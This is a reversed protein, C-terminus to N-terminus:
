LSLAFVWPGVLPDQSGLQVTVSPSMTVSVALSLVSQVKAAQPGPPEQAVSLAGAEHAKTAAPESLSGAVNVWFWTVIEIPEGAFPV